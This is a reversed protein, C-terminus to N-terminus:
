FQFYIFQRKSFEGLFIIGFTLAYYVTWRYWVPKRSLMLRLSRTRQQIHILEMFAVVVFAVLLQHKSIPGIGEALQRFPHLVGSAIVHNIYVADAITNARFFIWAYCALAFTITIQVLRHLRPRDTLGLAASVRDRLRRTWIGGLLYLGNVAGWAVFTWNAGHWIGSILFTVFINFYWRSDSARNGGLPIYVYDRFWTSLSIHWRKWFEAMTRAHYPRNFNTMLKFGMVQAAGIAIDSYGSFDCYIQFAFFVTAIILAVAGWVRPTNYVADVYLALRDAIVVKKFMGWLMLQLGAVVRSYELEHRECFQHLLNQPREIPGAVLQPYFMVYLAYLGFHHEATQRGKYVEITYSMAQFTHFSLGIPLALKLLPLSFSLRLLRAVSMLNEGFFNYYKFVALVGINAALSM